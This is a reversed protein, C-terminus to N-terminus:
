HSMYWDFFKDPDVLRGNGRARFMVGKEILEDAHRDCLGKIGVATTDLRSKMLEGLTKVKVFNNMM